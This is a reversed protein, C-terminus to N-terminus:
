ALGPGLYPLLFPDAVSTPDTRVLRSGMVQGMADITTGSRRRWYLQAAVETCARVLVDWPIAWSKGLKRELLAVAERACSHIFEEDGDQADVYATLIEAIAAPDPMMEAFIMPM